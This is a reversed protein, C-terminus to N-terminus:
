GRYQYVGSTETSVILFNEPIKEKFYEILKVTNNTAM